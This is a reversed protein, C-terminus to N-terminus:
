NYRRKYEEIIIKQNEDYTQEISIKEKVYEYVCLDKALTILYRYEIEKKKFKYIIIVESKSIPESKLQL